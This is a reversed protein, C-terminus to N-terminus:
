VESSSSSNTASRATFNGWDGVYAQVQDAIFGISRDMYIQRFMERGTAEGAPPYSFNKLGITIDALFDAAEARQEEASAKAKGKRKLRDVAKNSRKAEARAYEASGPGYVEIACQQGGEGILPVEEADNLLVLGTEVVKKSTIDFM